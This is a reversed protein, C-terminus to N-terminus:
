RSIAAISTKDIGIDKGIKFMGHWISYHSFGKRRAAPSAPPAQVSSSTEMVLCLIKAM